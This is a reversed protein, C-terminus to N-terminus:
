IIELISAMRSCGQSLFLKKIDALFGDVNVAQNLNCGATVVVQKLNELAQRAQSALDPGAFERTKPDLGLQGSIFFLPVVAIEQSYPWIAAPAKGAKQRGAWAPHSSPASLRRCLRRAPSM